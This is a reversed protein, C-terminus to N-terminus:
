FMFKGQDFGVFLDPPWLSKEPDPNVWGLFCLQANADLGM